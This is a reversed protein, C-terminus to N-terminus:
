QATRAFLTRVTEITDAEGATKDQRYRKVRAFRLAMGAPYQPSQQIENVAIEAVLEPRVRVVQGDREVELELLRKTQWELMRDTLGKFTKGLMVFEGSDPDRAGLHLNSLWGKRRGSGWEAALIVLDLTHAQKIKLWDAGRSGAAYRSTLSKAMIGEHGASLAESLFAAAASPDATRLRPVRLPSPALRELVAIRDAYEADILEDGNAYLCDFLFVRLPLSERLTDVDSRRGFRRMTVQFPLPRGDNALDDGDLVLETDPLELTAEVVEPLRETVDNLARSFIRVEDGCRHIQVRAGDLKYELAAEGLSEMAEDISAASQALMPRLPSLPVLRYERLAEIGGQFAAIAVRAPDATLMVARRVAEAPLESADAVAETLVAELAGQRLEGVVLRSLFDREDDTAGAFLRQLREQRRAKSGAGTIAAIEDFAANVDLLHLRPEPEADPLDLDRLMAYGIGIKGQPLAGSLYNVAVPIEEPAASSLCDALLKRKKLRSRTGAVDNSTSVLEGLKM